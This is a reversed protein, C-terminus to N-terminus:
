KCLWPDPFYFGAADATNMQMRYDVFEVPYYGSIFVTPDPNTAKITGTLSLVPPNNAFAVLTDEQGPLLERSHVTSWLRGDSDYLAWVVEFRCVNNSLSGVIASALRPSDAANQCGLLLVVVM